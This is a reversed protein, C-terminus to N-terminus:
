SGHYRTDSKYFHYCDLSYLVPSGTSLDWLWTSISKLSISTHPTGWKQKALKDHSHLSTSTSTARLNREAPLKM